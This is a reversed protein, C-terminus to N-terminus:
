LPAQLGCSLAVHPWWIEWDDDVCAPESAPVRESGEDAEVMGIGVRPVRWGYTWRARKVGDAMEPM